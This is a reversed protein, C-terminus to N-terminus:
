VVLQPCPEDLAAHVLGGGPEEDGVPLLRQCGRHDDVQEVAVSAEAALCGAAAQTV